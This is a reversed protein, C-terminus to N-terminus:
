LRRYEATSDVLCPRLMRLYLVSDTPEGHMAYASGAAIVSGMAGIESIGEAVPGEQDGYCFALLRDIM